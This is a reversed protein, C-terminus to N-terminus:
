GARVEPRRFILYLGLAPHLGKPGSDLGAAQTLIRLRQTGGGM